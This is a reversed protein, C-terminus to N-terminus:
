RQTATKSNFIDGRRKNSRDSYNKVVRAIETMKTTSSLYCSFDLEGQLSM